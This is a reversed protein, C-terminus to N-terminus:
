AAAGVPVADRRRAAKADARPPVLDALGLGLATMREAGSQAARACLLVQGSPIDSGPVFRSELRSAAIGIPGFDRREVNSLGSSSSATGDCGSGQQKQM